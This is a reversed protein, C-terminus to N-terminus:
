QPHTSCSWARVCLGVVDFDLVQDGGSSSKSSLMINRFAAKGARSDMSVVSRKWDAESKERNWGMSMLGSSAYAGISM